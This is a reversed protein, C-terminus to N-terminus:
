GGIDPAVMIGTTRSGDAAANAPQESWGRAVAREARTFAETDAAGPVCATTNRFPRAV